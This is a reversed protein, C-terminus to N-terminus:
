NLQFLREFGSLRNSKVACLSVYDASSHKKLLDFIYIFNKVSNINISNRLARSGFAVCTEGWIGCFAQRIIKLIILYCMKSSNGAQYFAM